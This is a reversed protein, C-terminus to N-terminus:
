GSCLEAGRTVIVAYGYSTHMDVRDSVAFQIGRSFVDSGDPTGHLPLVLTYAINASIYLVTVIGTGLVGIKM